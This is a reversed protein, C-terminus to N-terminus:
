RTDRHITNINEDKVTLSKWNKYGSWDSIIERWNGKHYALGFTGVATWKPHTPHTPSDRTKVLYSAHGSSDTYMCLFYGQYKDRLCENSFIAYDECDGRKRSFTREAPQWRDIVSKDKTYKVNAYLWAQVKYPTDLAKIVREYDDQGKFFFTNFIWWYITLIVKGGLGFFPIPIKDPQPTQEEEDLLNLEM